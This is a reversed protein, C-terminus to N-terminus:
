AAYGISESEPVLLLHVIRKRKVKGFLTGGPKPSQSTRPLWEKGPVIGKSDSNLRKRSKNGVGGGHVTQHGQQSSRKTLEGIGRTGELGWVEGRYDELYRGWSFLKRRGEM